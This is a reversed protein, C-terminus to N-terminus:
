CLGEKVVVRARLSPMRQVPVIYKRVKSISAVIYSATEANYKTPVIFLLWAAISLVGLLMTGNFGSGVAGCASFRRTASVAAVFGVSERWVGM